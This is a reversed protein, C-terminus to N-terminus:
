KYKELNDRISKEIEKDAKRKGKCNHKIYDWRIFTDGIVRFMFPIHSQNKYVAKAIIKGCYPCAPTKRYVAM